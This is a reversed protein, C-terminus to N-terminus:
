RARALKRLSQQLFKRLAASDTVAATDSTLGIDLSGNYSMLTVNFAVGGLPGIPYNELVLGGAIYVPFWAARVNSTAFDITEAQARAMRIVVSDPLTAGIAALQKLGGSATSARAQRALENIIGFRESIPMDGTPVALRCLSFANGAEGDDQSRTSVAMSTRLTEVPAGFERHYAGAADAAATIFAANLSGGLRKAADKMPDMPTRLTDLRRGLSRKAWLPSHAKETDSLQTVISRAAALTAQGAGPIKSPDTALERLQRALTLPGRFAGQIMSAVLHEEVPESAIEVADELPPPEPTDREMDLFQLSLRIGGEGDTVAHHIKQIIASRGNRLGDVVVFEWLPRTRDFPDTVILVALEELQRMSAPKPLAIHRVHRDIDFERDEVWLPPSVHAPAAVVRQRLRPVAFTAREMRRRFREVNISRDLITINGFTSALFPDKELRWMLGEADSM